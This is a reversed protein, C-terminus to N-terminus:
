GAQPTARWARLMLVVYVLGAVWQATAVYLYVRHWLYFTKYEMTSDIYPEIRPHLFALAVLGSAMLGWMLWQGWRIGRSARSSLQDWAFIAVAFAGVVNMWDTVHRTVMGQGFAGHVDTGTPVVVAAYFFFGGQWIMLAQIVLFRRVTSM